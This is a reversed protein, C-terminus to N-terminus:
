FDPAIEYGRGEWFAFFRQAGRIMKLDYPDATEDLYLEPYPGFEEGDYDDAAVAAALEAFTAICDAEIRAFLAAMDGITTDDGIEDIGTIDDYEVPGDKFNSGYFIIDMDVGYRQGWWQVLTNHRAEVVQGRFGYYQVAAVVEPIGDAPCDPGFSLVVPAPTQATLTARWDEFSPIIRANDRRKALWQKAFHFPYIPLAVLMMVVGGFNRPWDWQWGKFEASAAMGEPSFNGDYIRHLEKLVAPHNDDTRRSDIDKGPWDTTGDAYERQLVVLDLGM